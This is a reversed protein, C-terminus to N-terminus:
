SSRGRSPQTGRSCRPTSYWEEPLPPDVRVTDRYIDCRIHRFDQYASAQGPISKAFESIEPDPNFLRTAYERFALSGGPARRLVEFALWGHTNPRRPNQNRFEQAVTLRREELDTAAPVSKSRTDAQARSPPPEAVRADESPADVPIHFSEPGRPGKDLTSCPSPSPIEPTDSQIFAAVRNFVQQAEERKEPWVNFVQPSPHDAEFLRVRTLRRITKRASQAKKGMLVIARLGPLLGLLEELYPAAEEIDASTVPRIKRGDGVYWPVINWLLTDERPLGAARLLQLMNRATQDPNNRSIFASGVARPGPAELLFLVKARIGGDCPDFAPTDYGPGQARKVRELYEFLPQMHPLSLM